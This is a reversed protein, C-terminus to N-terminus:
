QASMGGDVSLIAGTMFSGAGSCLLMVAGQIEASNGIRHMPSMAAFIPAVEPHNIRGGAIQTSFPGPAIGNVAVGYPAMELATQRTVATIAAKSAIYAYGISPQSRMGAMSGIVVIRGSRQRKMAATAAQLTAFAGTLNVDLVRQWDALRIRDVEGETVTFGPGISVGANVIAIDLRGHRACLGEVTAVIAEPQTVDLPLAEAQHGADVLGQTAVNLRDVDVDAMGVLAGNVALVEAMALGLGGAAGTVLAVRGSVDFLLSTKM